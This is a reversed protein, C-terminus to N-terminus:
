PASPPALPLTLTVTTGRAVTSRLGIRGGSQEVISRCISLGLGAGGGSTKSSQWFPEFARDVEDPTMGRGNDAVSLALHSPWCAARAEIRGGRPTFKLANDILNILVQVVREPDVWIEPAGSSVANVLAVGRAAALPALLEFARDVLARAAHAGPELVLVGAEISAVDLLDLVLRRMRTASREICELSRQVVTEDSTERGVLQPTALLIAGLPTKLDHAVTALRRERLHVAAAARAHTRCNTIAVGIRRGLEALDASSMPPRQSPGFAVLEGASGSGDRLPVVAAWRAGLAAAATAGLLEDGRGLAVVGKAGHVALATLAEPSTGALTPPRCVRRGGRGDDMSVLCGGGFRASAAGALRELLVGEDLDELLLATLDSLLASAEAPDAEDIRALGEPVVFRAQIGSRTRKEYRTSELIRENSSM